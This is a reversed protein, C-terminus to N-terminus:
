VADKSLTKNLVVATTPQSINHEQENLVSVKLVTFNPKLQM